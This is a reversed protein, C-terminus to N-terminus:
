EVDVFLDALSVQLGKALRVLTVFTANIGGAEIKQLHKWDLDMREAAVELTLNRKQRLFRVRLGFSRVATRYPKAERAVQSARKRGRVM